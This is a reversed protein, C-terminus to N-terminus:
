IIGGPSIRTGSLSINRVIVIDEEVVAVVVVDHNANSQRIFTPMKFPETLTVVVYEGYGVMISDDDFMDRNIDVLSYKNKKMCNGSISEITNGQWIEAKIEIHEVPKVDVVPDVIVLEAQLVESPSVETPSVDVQELKKPAAKKPAAKKAVAKKPAAKKPAFMDDNKDTM